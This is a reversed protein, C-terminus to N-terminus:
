GGLNTRPSRETDTQITLSTATDKAAVKQAVRQPLKNDIVQPATPKTAPTSGEVTNEGQEYFM